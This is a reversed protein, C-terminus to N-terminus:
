IVEQFFEQVDALIQPNYKAFGNHQALAIKVDSKTYRCHQLAQKLDDIFDQELIDSYIELDQILGENVQLQMDINGWTFRKEHHTTFPIRRGFIWNWDAFKHTLVELEKAPLSDISIKETPCNYVIEVATCLCDAMKEPTIDECYEIINTVRAQVSNVGKSQLKSKDVNLYRAMNSTDVNLLITGHHYQNNGTQYFANGSFKKGDITIDNRGTAQANIGLYQVAKCIVDLQKELNYDESRVCFTFNLNGMDHYVAGGGSLRRVLYGGEEQLKSVNCEKWANQNRGIVVTHANQWLYMILEGEQVTNTLYEEIALNKYPYHNTNLFIKVKNIM